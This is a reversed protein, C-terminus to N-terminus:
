VSMATGCTRCSVKSLTCDRGCSGWDSCTHCEPKAHTLTAPQWCQSCFWYVGSDKWPKADSRRISHFDRYVSYSGFNTRITVGPKGHLIRSHYETTIQALETRSARHEALEVDVDDQEVMWQGRVKAVPIGLQGISVLQRRSGFIVVGNRHAQQRFWDYSNRGCGPERHFLDYAARLSLMMSRDTDCPM